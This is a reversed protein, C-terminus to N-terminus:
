SPASTLSSTALALATFSPGSIGEPPVLSSLQKQRRGGANRTAQQRDSVWVRVGSPLPTLKHGRWFVCLIDGILTVIKDLAGLLGGPSARSSVGVIEGFACAVGM